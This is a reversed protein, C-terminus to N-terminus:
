KRSNARKPKPAPPLSKDEQGDEEIGIPREDDDDEDSHLGAISLAARAFNSATKTLKAPISVFRKGLKLAQDTVKIPANLLAGGAQAATKGTKTANRLTGSLVRAGEGGIEKVSQMVNVAGNTVSRGLGSLMDFNHKALTHLNKLQERVLRGFYGLADSSLKLAGTATNAAGAARKSAEGVATRALRKGAPWFQQPEEGNDDDEADSDETTNIEEVPKEAVKKPATKVVRTVTRQM